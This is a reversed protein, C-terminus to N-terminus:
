NKMAAGKRWKGVGPKEISNGLFAVMANSMEFFVNKRVSLHLLV